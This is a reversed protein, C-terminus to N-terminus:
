GKPLCLSLFLEIVNRNNAFNSIISIYKLSPTFSLQQNDM